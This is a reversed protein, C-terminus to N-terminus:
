WRPRLNTKWRNIITQAADANFFVETTPGLVPYFALVWCASSDPMIYKFLIVVSGDAATLRFAEEDGGATKVFTGHKMFPLERDFPDIYGNWSWDFEGRQPNDSDPYFVITDDGNSITIGDFGGLFSYGSGKYSDEDLEGGGFDDVQVLGRLEEASQAKKSLDQTTILTYVEARTGLNISRSSFRGSTTIKKPSAVTAKKIEIGYDSYLDSVNISGERPLINTPLPIEYPDDPDYDTDDSSIRQVVVGGLGEFYEYFGYLGSITNGYDWDKVVTNKAEYIANKAEDIVTDDISGKNTDILNDTDASDPDPVVAAAIGSVVDYLALIAGRFNESTVDLSDCIYELIGAAVTSVKDHLVANVAAYSEKNFPDFTIGTDYKVKEASSDVTYSWPQTDMNNKVMTTFASITTKGAPTTYVLSPFAQASVSSGSSQPPYFEAVLPYAAQTRISFAGNSEANVTTEGDCSNSNDADGCVQVTYGTYGSPIIVTGSIPEPQNSGGNGGSDSSGCSISAVSFIALLFSLLFGNFAKLM